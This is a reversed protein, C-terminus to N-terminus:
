KAAAAAETKLKEINSSSAATAIDNAFNIFETMEDFIHSYPQFTNNEIAKYNAMITKFRDTATVTASDALGDYSDGIANLKDVQPQLKAWSASWCGIFASDPAGSPLRSEPSLKQCDAASNLEITMERISVLQEVFEGAFRQRSTVAYKDVATALQEGTALINDEDDHLATVIAQQRRTTDVAKSADILIPQLISLFTDILTGVPGLFSFTDVAAGTAAVSATDEPAAAPHAAIPMNAGYYNVAYGKLDAQCAAFTKAALAAMGAADVKVKDAISYGSSAFLLKLAGAIDKPDPPPKSVTSINQVLTNLYNLSISNSVYNQRPTCLIAIEGLTPDTNAGDLNVHTATKGAALLAKSLAARIAFARADSRYTKLTAAGSTALAGVSAITPEYIPPLDISVGVTTTSTTSTTPGTTQGSASAWVTMVAALASLSGVFTRIIRM